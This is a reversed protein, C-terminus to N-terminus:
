VDKIVSEVEDLLKDIFNLYPEILLHVEPMALTIETGMVEGNFEEDPASFIHSHKGHKEFHGSGMDTIYGIPDGKQVSTGKSLDPRLYTHVYYKEGVEIGDKEITHYIFNTMQPDFEIEPLPKDTPLKVDREIEVRGDRVVVNFHNVPGHPDSHELVEDRYKHVTEETADGLSIVHTFIQAGKSSKVSGWHTKLSTYLKGFSGFRINRRDKEAYLTRLLQTATNALRKSSQVTNNYSTKLLQSREHYNEHLGGDFIKREIQKEILIKREIDIDVTSKANSVMDELASSLATLAKTQTNSVPKQLLGRIRNELEPLRSVNIYREARLKRRFNKYNM